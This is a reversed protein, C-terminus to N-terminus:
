TWKVHREWSLQPLSTSSVSQLCIQTNDSVNVYMIMCHVVGATLVAATATMTNSNQSVSTVRLEKLTCYGIDVDGETSVCVCVCM